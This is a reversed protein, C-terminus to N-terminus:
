KDTRKKWKATVKPDGQLLKEVNRVLERTLSKAM